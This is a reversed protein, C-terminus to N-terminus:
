PVFISDMRQFIFQQATWCTLRLGSIYVLTKVYEESLHLELDPLIDYTEDLEYNCNSCARDADQNHDFHVNHSLALSARLINIKEEIIQQVSIFFTGWSGQLLEFLNEM